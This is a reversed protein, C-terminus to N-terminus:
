KSTALVFGGCLGKLAGCENCTVPCVKYVSQVGKGDKLDVTGNLCYGSWGACATTADVCGYTCLSVQENCRTPLDNNVCNAYNCGNQYCQEM